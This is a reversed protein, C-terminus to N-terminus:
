AATNEHELLESQQVDLLQCLILLNKATTLKEHNNDIWRQVTGPHTDNEVILAAKIKNSKNIKKLYDQKIRM